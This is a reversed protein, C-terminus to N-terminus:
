PRGPSAASATSPNKSNYENIFALTVDMGDNATLIAPALKSVDLIMTIGRAKAFGDLSKGIDESIPSVVEQYRRQYDAQAQEQKYKLDRQLKEGQDQKTRLTNPDVVPAGQLKNLEDAIGKIQTQLTTIEQQKPQFERELAKVAAVYRKIGQKEDSFAETNVFAIKTDPVAANASAGAAPQTAAAPRQAQASVATLTALFAAVAILRIKNM